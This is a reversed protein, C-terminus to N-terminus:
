DGIPPWCFTVYCGDAIKIKDRDEKLKREFAQKQRYLQREEERTMAKDGIRKTIKTNSGM